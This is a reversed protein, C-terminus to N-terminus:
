TKNINDVIASHFTSPAKEHSILHRPMQSTGCINPDVFATWLLLILNCNYQECGPRNVCIPGACICLVPQESM